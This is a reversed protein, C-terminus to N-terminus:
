WRYYSQNFDKRSAPVVDMGKNIYLVIEKLKM